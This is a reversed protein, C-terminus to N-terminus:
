SILVHIPIGDLLKRGNLGPIESIVSIGAIDVNMQNLLSIVASLTGGTALVDDIVLIKSESTFTDKHMEITASGYELDYQAQLTERPLKGIKRAPVLGAQLLFAIASALLFGRAEVGVVHTIGKGAFPEAMLNITSAFGSPDALLTTIDQFIVGPEPYDPIRLIMEDLQKVNLM